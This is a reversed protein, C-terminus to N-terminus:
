SCIHSDLPCGYKFTDHVIDFCDDPRKVISSFSPAQSIGAFDYFFGLKHLAINVGIHGIYRGFGIRRCDEAANYHGFSFEFTFDNNYVVSRQLHNQWLLGEFKESQEQNRDRICM